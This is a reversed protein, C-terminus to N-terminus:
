VLKQSLSVPLVEKDNDCYTLRGDEHHEQLTVCMTEVGYVFDDWIQSIIENQRVANVKWDPIVQLSSGFAQLIRPHYSYTGLTRILKPIDTQAPGTPGLGILADVLTALLGGEILQCLENLPHSFQTTCLDILKMLLAITQAKPLAGSM